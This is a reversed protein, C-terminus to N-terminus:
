LSSFLIYLCATLDGSKLKITVTSSYSFGSIKFHKYVKFPTISANRKDLGCHNETIPGDTRYM